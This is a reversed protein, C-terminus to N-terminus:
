ASVRLYLSTDRSITGTNLVSGNGNLPGVSLSNGHM